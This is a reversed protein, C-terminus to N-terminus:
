FKENKNVKNIKDLKIKRLELNTYFYENFSVNSIRYYYSETLIKTTKTEEICNYTKNKILGPVGDIENSLLRFYKYSFPGNVKAHVDNNFIGNVTKKCIATFNIM